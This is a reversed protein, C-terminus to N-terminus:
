KAWARELRDLIAIWDPPPREVAIWDLHEGDLEHLTAYLERAYSAADAPMRIPRECAASRSLWL